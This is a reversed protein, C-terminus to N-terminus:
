GAGEDYVAREEVRIRQRLLALNLASFLVATRWAGHVLPLFLLEMVVAAYNPHRLFRYPGRRVPARGPEYLVRTNWRDGLSVIAWYRLMMSAGVVLVRRDLLRM